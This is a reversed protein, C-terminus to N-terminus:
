RRTPGLAPHHLCGVVPRRGLQGPGQLRRVHQRHRRQLYRQDGRCPQPHLRRRRLRRHGARRGAHALGRRAAEPGDRRGPGPAPPLRRRASPSDVSTTQESATQGGPGTVTVTVSYVGTGPYNHSAKVLIGGDVRDAVLSGPSATTGDGWNISASFDGAREDTQGDVTADFSAVPNLAFGVGAYADIVPVGGLSIEVQPQTVDVPTTTADPLGPSTIVLDDDSVANISLGSFTAIGAEATVTLVGALSAGGAPALLVVTETGNFNTDVAGTDDEVAVSLAFTGDIDTSSPPEVTVALHENTTVNIPTTQVAPLGPTTVQLVYGNGVRNITLGQFFAVGNVATVTLVGGLNPAGGSPVAVTVSVPGNFGTDVGGQPNQIQVTLGFPEGVEVSAPPEVVIALHDTNVKATTSLTYFQNGGLVGSPIPVASGGPSATGVTKWYYSGGVAAFPDPLNGKSVAEANAVMQRFGAQFASKANAYKYITNILSQLDRTITVGNKGKPSFGAFQSSVLLETLTKARTGFSKPTPLRNRLTAIMAQMGLKTQDADYGIGKPDFPNNSEVLLLCLRAGRQTNLDPKTLAPLSSKAPKKSSNLGVRHGQEHGSGRAATIDVVDLIAAEADAVEHAPGAQAASPRVAPAQVSALRVDAQAILSTARAAPLWCFGDKSGNSVRSPWDVVSGRKGVREIQAALPFAGSRTSCRYLERSRVAFPAGGSVMEIRHEPERGGGDYKRFHRIPVPRIINGVCEQAFDNNVHMLGDGRMCFVKASWALVTGRFPIILERSCLKRAGIGEHSCIM